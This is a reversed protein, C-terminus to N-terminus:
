TNGRENIITIPHFRSNRNTYYLGKKGCAKISFVRAFSINFCAGKKIGNVLLTLTYETLIEKKVKIQNRTIRTNNVTSLQLQLCPKPTGTDYCLM